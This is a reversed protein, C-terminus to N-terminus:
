RDSRQKDVAPEFGKQEVYGDFMAALILNM